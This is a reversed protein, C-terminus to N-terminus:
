TIDHDRQAIPSAVRAPAAQSSVPAELLTAPSGISNASGPRTTSIVASLMSVGSITGSMPRTM